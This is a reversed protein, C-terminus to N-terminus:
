ILDFCWQDTDRLSSEVNNITTYEDIENKKSRDNYLLNLDEYNDFPSQNNYSSIFNEKNDDFGLDNELMIDDQLESFSFDGLTDSMDNFNNCSVFYNNIISDEEDPTLCFPDNILTKGFNDFENIGDELKMSHKDRLEKNLNTNEDNIFSDFNFDDMKNRKIMPEGADDIICSDGFKDSNNGFESDEEVGDEKKVRKRRGKTTKKPSKMFHKSGLRRMYYGYKRIYAIYDDIEEESVFEPVITKFSNHTLPFLQLNGKTLPEWLQSFRMTNKILGVMNEDIKHVENFNFPENHKVMSWMCAKRSGIQVKAEVKEYLKSMSLNHRISNRWGEYATEFHPFLFIIGDYVESVSIAYTNLNNLILTVFAAYPLQPKDFLAHAALKAKFEIDENYRKEVQEKSENPGVKTSPEETIYFPAFDNEMENPISFRSSPETSCRSSPGSSSITDNSKPEIDKYHNIFATETQPIEIDSKIVRVNVTKKSQNSEPNNCDLIGRLVSCRISTNKGVPLPTIKSNQYKVDKTMDKSSIIKETSMDQNLLEYMNNDNNLHQQNDYVDINDTVYMNSSTYCGDNTLYRCGDNQNDDEYKPSSYDETIMYNQDLFTDNEHSDIVNYENQTMEDIDAEPTQRSSCSSISNSKPDVYTKGDNNYQQYIAGFNRTYDVCGGHSSSDSHPPSLQSPFIYKNDYINQKESLKVTKTSGPIIRNPVMTNRQTGLCVVKRPQVAYNTRKQPKYLKITNPELERKTKDTKHRIRLIPAKIGTFSERNTNRSPPLSATPTFATMPLVNTSDVLSLEKQKDNNKYSETKVCLYEDLDEGLRDSVTYSIM